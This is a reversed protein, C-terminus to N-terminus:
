HSVQTRVARVCLTGCGALVIVGGIVSFALDIGTGFAVLGVALYGLPELGTIAFTLIGLVAGKGGPLSMSRARVFGSLAPGTPGSCLGFLASLVIFVTLNDAAGLAIICTGVAVMLVVAARVKHRLKNVARIMVFSGIALGAAWVAYGLGFQAASWHHGRAKLPYGTLTLGATLANYVGHLPITHRMVPDVAVIGWGARAARFLDTDATPPTLQQTTTIRAFLGLAVFFAVAGAISPGALGVDSLLWGGAAGAIVQAGRMILKEIGAITTQGNEPVLDTPFVEMAPQHLGDVAGIVFALVPLVVLPTTDVVMAVTWALLVALRVSETMLVARGSGLRDILAGGLLTFAAAPVAGACFILGSWLASPARAAVWGLTVFWM